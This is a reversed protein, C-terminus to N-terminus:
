IQLGVAEPHTHVRLWGGEENVFVNFKGSGNGENPHPKGM